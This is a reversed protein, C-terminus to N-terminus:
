DPVIEADDEALHGLDALSWIITGDAVLGEVEALNAVDVLHHWHLCNVDDSHNALESLRLRDIELASTGLLSSMNLDSIVRSLRDRDSEPSVLETPTLVKGQTIDKGELSTSDTLETAPAEIARSVVRGDEFTAFQGLLLSRSLDLVPHLLQELLAHAINLLCEEAVVREGGLWLGPVLLTHSVHLPLLLLAIEVYTLLNENM